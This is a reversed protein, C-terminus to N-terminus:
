LRPRVVVPRKMPRFLGASTLRRLGQSVGPLVFRSFPPLIGHRNAHPTNRGHRREGDRCHQSGSGARLLFVVGAGAIALDPDAVDHGITPRGRGIAHEPLGLGGEEVHDVGFAADVPALDIEDGIVIGIARGLRDLLRALQHLASTKSIKWGSPVGEFEAIMFYM